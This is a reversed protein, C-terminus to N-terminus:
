RMRNVRYWKETPESLHVVICDGAKFVSRADPWVPRNKSAQLAEGVQRSSPRILPIGEAGFFNHLRSDNGDDWDFFSGGCSGSIVLNEDTHDHYMGIFVVPERRFPLDKKEMAGAISEATSVDRLYVRYSDYFLRNMAFVDYALVVAAAGAAIRRVSAAPLWRVFDTLLWVWQFAGLLVLALLARGPMRYTGLALFLAFPSVILCLAALFLPLGRRGGGRRRRILFLVALCFAATTVCVAFGSYIYVGFVTIGFSVQVVKALAFALAKVPNTGAWGVYSEAFDQMGTLRFSRYLLSDVALYAAFSVALVAGYPLLRFLAARLNRGGRVTRLFFFVAIWTLYVCLFAQYVSVAFFLAAAAGALPLKKGRRAYFDSLCCALATLLMAISIQLNFMSYSLIEGACLPLASFYSCFVFASFRSYKRCFQPLSYLFLPASCAWLIVSLWDWVGPVYSGQPSLVFNLLWIGFRGQPIWALSGSSHHIWTEEDITLSSHTLMFGFALLCLCLSALFAWRYKRYFVSLRRIEDRM